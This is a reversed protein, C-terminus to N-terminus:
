RCSHATMCAVLRGGTASRSKAVYTCDHMCVYNGASPEGIDSCLEPLTDACLRILHLEGAAAAPNAPGGSGLSAAPSFQVTSQVDGPTTTATVLNSCLLVCILAAAYIRAFRLVEIQVLFTEFPQPLHLLLMQLHHIKSSGCVLPCDNYMLQSPRIHRFQNHMTKKNCGQMHFPPSPTEALLQPWVLLSTRAAVLWCNSLFM